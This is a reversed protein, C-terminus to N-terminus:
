FQLTYAQKKRLCLIAVAYILNCLLNVCSLIDYIRGTVYDSLKLGYIYFVEIIVNFTYFILLGICILFVPSRLIEKEQMLLKNITSVSLLVVPFAYVIAFNSNFQTGFKHLILNDWSWVIVYIFALLTELWKYGKFINLEHFFWLLLFSEILSYINSNIINYLGNLYLIITLTENLAAVWILVIFPYFTRSIETFKFISFIAGIWISLSFAIIINFDM